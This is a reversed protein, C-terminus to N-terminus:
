VFCLVRPPMRWVSRGGLRCSASSTASREPLIKTDLRRVVGGGAISVDEALIVDANNTKGDNIFKMVEDVTGHADLYTITVPKTQGIRHVRCLAQDHVFPNFWRDLFLVHNAETINLGTGGSAVTALLVRGDPDSKFTDLTDTRAPGNVDGDFRYIGKMNFEHSLAGEILDLGSKFFSFIIGRDTARMDKVWKM